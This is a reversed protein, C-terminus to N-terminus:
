SMWLKGQWSDRRHLEEEIKRLTRTKDASWLPAVLEGRHADGTLRHIVILPDLYELFLCVMDVYRDMDVPIFRGEDYLKRLSSASPVYLLHIKVGKVKLKSLYQATEIVEKDTQGPFGLIIHAVLEVPYPRAMEVAKGFDEVKHGRGVWLLTADNISQLGLELFVRRKPNFSSLLELSQINICDPRTGVSIAVIEHYKEVPRWMKELQDAPAYTNTFSQYYAIFANVNGYKRKLAAMGQEIQEEIGAGKSMLGTGSGRDNCYICGTGGGERNPCGFGADISIKYVRQGFSEKLYTNLDRFPKKEM